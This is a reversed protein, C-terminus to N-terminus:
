QTTAPLLQSKVAPHDKRHAANPADSVPRM